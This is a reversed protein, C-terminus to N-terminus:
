KDDSELSTNLVDMNIIKPPPPPTSPTNPVDANNVKQPADPIWAGSVQGCCSSNARRIATPSLNPPPTTPLVQTHEAHDPSSNLSFAFQREILPPQQSSNSPLIPTLYPSVADVANQYTSNDSCKIRKNSWSQSNIEGSLNVWSDYMNTPMTGLLYMIQKEHVNNTVTLGKIHHELESIKNQLIMTKYEKLNSTEKAYEPQDSAPNSTPLLPWFYPDDYVLKANIQTDLVRAQLNSATKTYYWVNFHVFAQRTVRGNKTTNVFDVRSVEGVDLRHFTEKIFAETIKGTIVPIYLSLTFNFSDESNDFSYDPMLSYNM